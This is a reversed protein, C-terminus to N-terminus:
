GSLLQVVLTALLLATAPLLICPPSPTTRVLRVATYGGALCYAALALPPFGNLWLALGLCLIYLLFLGRAARRTRAAGYRVAFCHKGAARDTDIQPPQHSLLLATALAAFALMALAAVPNVDAGSTLWLGGVVGPGYCLGTVWEGLWTYSLPRPGANYLFGLGAVPIALWLVWLRGAALLVTIGLIGGALLSLTGHLRTITLNEGHARVWSDLKETDAGLRWDATDNFLNVAHQLLVVALTALALWLLAKGQPEALQWVAIGPLLSILYVAPNLAQRWTTKQHLAV